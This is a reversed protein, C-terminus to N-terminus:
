GSNGGIRSYINKPKWNLEKGPVMRTGKISDEIFGNQRFFEIGAIKM